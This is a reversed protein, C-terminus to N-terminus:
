FVISPLGVDEDDYWNLNMKFLQHHHHDRPFFKNPNLVFYMNNKSFAYNAVTYM